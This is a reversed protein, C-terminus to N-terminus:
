MVPLKEKCDIHLFLIGYGFNCGSLLSFIFSMLFCSIWPQNLLFLWSYGGWFAHQRRVGPHTHLSRIISKQSGGPVLVPLHTICGSVEYMDPYCDTNEAVCALM